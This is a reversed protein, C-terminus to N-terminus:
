GRKPLIIRKGPVPLKPKPKPKSPKTSPKPAVHLTVTSGVKVKKGADPNQSTVYLLGKGTVVGVSTTKLGKITLLSIATARQAGVVNPVTVTPGPGGGQGGGGGQQLVPPPAGNPPNGEFGIAATVIDYEDQSLPKGALYLGLATGVTIPDYGLSTLYTEAETAWTANTPNYVTPLGVGPGPNYGGTLPDYGGLMGPTTGYGSEQSYPIGTNPDIANPDQGTTDTATAQRKRYWIVGVIGLGAGAAYLLIKKNKTLKKKPPSGFTPTSM